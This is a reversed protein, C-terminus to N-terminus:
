NNKPCAVAITKEEFGSGIQTSEDYAINGVIKACVINKGTGSYRIDGNKINNFKNLLERGSRNAESIAEECYVSSSSTSVTFKEGGVLKIIIKYTVEVKEVGRQYAPCETVQTSKITSINKNTIRLPVESGLASFSSLVLLGLLLNKM